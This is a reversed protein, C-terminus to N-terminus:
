GISRRCWMAEPSASVPLLHNVCTSISQQIMMWPLTLNRDNCLICQLYVDLIIVLDQVCKFLDYMYVHKHVYTQIDTLIYTHRCTQVDLNIDRHRDTHISPHMGAHMCTHICAHMYTCIIIYAHIYPHMYTRLYTRVCTYLVWMQFTRFLYPLTAPTVAPKKDLFSTAVRRPVIKQSVQATIQSLM